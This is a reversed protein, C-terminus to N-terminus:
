ELQTTLCSPPATVPNCGPSGKPLTLTYGRGNATFPLDDKLMHVGAALATALRQRCDDDSRDIACVNSTTLLRSAHAKAMLSPDDVYAETVAAWPMEYQEATASVFMLRDNLSTYDRTYVRAREDRNLVSFMIKGRVDDVRPWGTKMIRERPSAHSGRLSDPTILKERPFVRLITEELKQPDDIPSGGTDDKIEIWIFIPTHRPNAGSWNAVTRLCAEFTECTARQDIVAIHYVDFVGDNRLHVDLELARLGGALQEDLPRHTYKHSAHFAVLPAVHYSNHTGAVQLANLAVPESRADTAVPAGGDSPPSPPPVGGDPAGVEPASGGTSADSPRAGLDTATGADAIAVDGNAGADNARADNSPRRGDGAGGDGRDPDVNTAKVSGTCGVAAVMLAALASLWVGTAMRGSARLPM